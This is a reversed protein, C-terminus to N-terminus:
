FLRLPQAGFGHAMNLYTLGVFIALLLATLVYDGPGLRLEHLSTRPVDRRGYGRAELSMALEGSARLTTIIMAVFIPMMHRARKFGSYQKLNLGRAQQAESVMSYIGQFTPIYRLALALTLGWEHPAGLKVLSQVLAPQPTTYLWAFIAFAMTWIRLALVAGQALAVATVKIVWFALVPEGVPYFIVRLIALLLGIPLLAKWVFGYRALPTGASWHLLHMLLLAAAMLWLNKYLILLVISGAAFLLKVRPDARHMWSQGQFYLDASVTM